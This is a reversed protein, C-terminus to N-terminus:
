FSIPMFKPLLHAGGSKYVKLLDLVVVMLCRYGESMGLVVLVIVDACVVAHVVFVRSVLTYIRSDLALVSHCSLGVVACGRM